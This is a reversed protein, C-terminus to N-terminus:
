KIKLLREANIYAESISKVINDRYGIEKILEAKTLDEPKKLKM